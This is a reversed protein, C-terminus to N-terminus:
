FKLDVVLYLRPVQQEGTRRMNQYFNIDVVYEIAKCIITFSLARAVSIRETSSANTLMAAIM